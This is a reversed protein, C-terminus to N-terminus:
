MENLKDLKRVTQSHWKGKGSFTPVMEEEFQSAIQNYSLGAERKERIIRIIKKKAGDDPKEGPMAKSDSAPENESISEAPTEFRGAMEGGALYEAIKELAATQREEAVIRREEMETLRKNTQYISELLGKMDTVIEALINTQQEMESIKRNPSKRRDKIGQKDGGWYQTNYSATSRRAPDFRKDNGGARNRKNFDGM